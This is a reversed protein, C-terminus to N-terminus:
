LEFSCYPGKPSTKNVDSKEQLDDERETPYVCNCRTGVRMESQGAGYRPVTDFYRIGQQWAAGVTAAAESEPINRFMNGSPAAGFDLPGSIRKDRISM